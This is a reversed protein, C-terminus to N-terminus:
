SYSLIVLITPDSVVEVPTKDTNFSFLHLCEICGRTSPWLLGQHGEMIMDQGRRIFRAEADCALCSRNYGTISVAGQDYVM